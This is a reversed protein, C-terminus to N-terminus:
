GQGRAHEYLAVMERACRDWSYELRRRHGARVLAAATGADDLVGALADALEGPDGARAILAADGVVERVAPVDTTVVPIGASMAELPPLGFGEYRSPYALVAAGALLDARQRAGVYGTCRIRDAVGSTAIAAEVADAGWGRGGAIVLHLGPRGPALRAFAAVLAAHDKRPEITGVALIYREAGALRRGASADGSDSADFGNHVVRVRREDVGLITVVEDAVAATPTHVVAGTDVARKILAPYRLTERTCMEPFRVATLDHVTVVRAAARSPPVVFNTGHVVDIAGTWREIVPGAFRSWLPLLMQAVMPRGVVEVGGPVVSRVSSRGSWSLAYAVPEAPTALLSGVLGAAFVGVGTPAGLMPTVDFALRM